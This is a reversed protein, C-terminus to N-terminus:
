QVVIVAEADLVVHLVFATQTTYMGAFRV